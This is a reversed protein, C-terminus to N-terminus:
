LIRKQIDQLSLLFLDFIHHFLLFDLSFTSFSLSLVLKLSKNFSKFFIGLLYQFICNIILYSISSVAKRFCVVICCEHMHFIVIVIVRINEFRSVIYLHSATIPIYPMNIYRAIGIIDVCINREHFSIM